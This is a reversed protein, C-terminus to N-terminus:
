GTPSDLCGEAQRPLKQRRALAPVDDRRIYFRQRPLEEITVPVLRGKEALRVMAARIQGDSGVM